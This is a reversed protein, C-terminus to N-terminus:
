EVMVRRIAAFISDTPGVVGLSELKSESQNIPLVSLSIISEGSEPFPVNIPEEADTIRVGIVM